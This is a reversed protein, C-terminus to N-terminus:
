NVLTVLLQTPVRMFTSKFIGDYTLGRLLNAVHPSLSYCDM